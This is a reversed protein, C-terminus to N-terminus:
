DITILKSGKAPDKKCLVTKGFTMWDPLPREANLIQNLQVARRPHLSILSKLWCRQVGDKGPAKRISWIYSSLKISDKFNPIIRDGQKKGNLNNYGQKQNVQPLQNESFQSFRQEYRKVKIKKAIFRQNGKETVLNIGKKKVRYKTNLEKINTKGKGATEGRRERELKNIGM